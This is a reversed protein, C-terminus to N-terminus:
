WFPGKVRQGYRSTLFNQLKTVPVDQVDLQGQSDVVLAAAIGVASGIDMYMTEIRTSSFAVASTSLCVPVLLNTV